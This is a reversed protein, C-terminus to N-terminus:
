SGACIVAPCSLHANCVLSGDEYRQVLLITKNLSLDSMRSSSLCQRCLSFPSLAIFVPTQHLIITLLARVKVWHSQRLMEKHTRPEKMLGQVTASEIRELREHSGRVGELVSSM